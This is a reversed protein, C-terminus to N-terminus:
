TRSRLYRTYTVQPFHERIFEEFLYTSAKTDIVTWVTHCSNQPYKDEVKQPTSSTCIATVLGYRTKSTMRVLDEDGHYPRFGEYLIGKHVYSINPRGPTHHPSQAQKM